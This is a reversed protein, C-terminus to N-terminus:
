KPQDCENERRQECELCETAGTRKSIGDWDRNCGPCTRRTLPKGVWEFGPLEQPLKGPHERRVRACYCAPNTVHPLYKPLAEIAQLWAADLADRDAAQPASARAGAGGAPPLPARMMKEERKKEPLSKTVSEANRKKAVREKTLARNKAGQSLHREFKPIRIGDDQLRLWGVKELASAFGCLHAVGDVNMETVGRAYGSVLHSDAWSWFRHCHGIITEPSVSLLRAM